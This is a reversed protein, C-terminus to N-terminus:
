DFEDGFEKKLTEYDLDKMGIDEELDLHQQHHDHYQAQWDINNDAMDMKMIEEKLKENEWEEDMAGVFPLGFVKIYSLGVALGMGLIPFIAWFYFPSTVINIAALFASILIYTGLFRYFRRISRVRKRAKKYNPSKDLNQYYESTDM